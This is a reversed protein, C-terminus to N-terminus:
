FAVVRKTLKLAPLWLKMERRTLVMGDQASPRLLLLREKGSGIAMEATAGLELCGRQQEM